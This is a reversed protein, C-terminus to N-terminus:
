RGCRAEGMGFDARKVLHSFGVKRSGPTESLSQPRRATEPFSRQFNTKELKKAPSACNDIGCIIGASIWRDRQLLPDNFVQSGSREFPALTSVQCFLEKIPHTMTGAVMPM